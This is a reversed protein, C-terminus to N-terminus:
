LRDGFLCLKRLSVGRAGSREHDVEELIIGPHDIDFKIVQGLSGVM